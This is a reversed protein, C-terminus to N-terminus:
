TFLVFNGYCTENLGLVTELSKLFQPLEGCNGRIVVAGVNGNKHSDVMMLGSSSSSIFVVSKGGYTFLAAKRHVMQELHYALRSAPNPDSMRVVIEQHININILRSRSLYSATENLTLTRAGGTSDNALTMGVRTAYLISSFWTNDLPGDEPLNGETAVWIHGLLLATLRSANAINNCTASKSFREPFLWLSVSTGAVKLFRVNRYEEAEGPVPMVGTDSMTQCNSQPVDADM